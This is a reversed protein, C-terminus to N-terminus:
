KEEEGKKTETEVPDPNPKEEKENLGMNQIWNESGFDALYKDFSFDYKKRTELPLENFIEKAKEIQAHAEFINNPMESVDLYQGRVKNLITPDGTDICRQLINEIKTEELYAQTKEYINTQGEIYFVENGKEDLKMAWVDELKEGSPTIIEKPDDVPTRFYMKKTAM